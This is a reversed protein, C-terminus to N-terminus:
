MVGYLVACTGGLCLGCGGRRVALGTAPARVGGRVQVHKSPTQTGDGSMCGLGEM